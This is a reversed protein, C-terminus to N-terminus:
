TLLVTLGVDPAGLGIIQVMCLIGVCALTVTATLRSHTMCLALVGLTILPLLLVDLSSGGAATRPPLDGKVVASLSTGLIAVVM